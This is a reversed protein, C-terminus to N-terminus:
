VSLLGSWCWFWEQVGCNLYGITCPCSLALCTLRPLADFGQNAGRLGLSAIGAM